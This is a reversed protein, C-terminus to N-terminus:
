KTEALFSETLNKLDLTLKSAEEEEEYEPITELLGQIKPDSEAGVVGVDYSDLFASKVMEDSSPRTAAEMVMDEVNEKGIAAKISNLM